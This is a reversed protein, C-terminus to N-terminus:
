AARVNTARMEARAARVEAVFPALGKAHVGGVEAYRAVFREAIDGHGHEECDVVFGAVGNEPIEYTITEDTTGDRNLGLFTCGWAVADARTFTARPEARFARLWAAATVTKRGKCMGCRRNFGGFADFHRYLGTGNCLPCTRAATTSM